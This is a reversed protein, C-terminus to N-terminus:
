DVVIRVINSPDVSYNNEECSVTYRTRGINVVKGVLKENKPALFEVTSDIEINKIIDINIPSNLRHTYEAHGFFSKAVQRYFEGHETFSKNGKNIIRLKSSDVIFHCLEHELIILLASIRDKVEFGNVTHSYLSDEKITETILRTDITISTLSKKPTSTTKTKGTSGGRLRDVRFHIDNIMHPIFRCFYQKSVFELDDDTILEPMLTCFREECVKHIKARSYQIFKEDYEERMPYVVDPYTCGIKMWGLEYSTLITQFVDIIRPNSIRQLLIELYHPNRLLCKIPKSDVIKKQYLKIQDTRLLELVLSCVIKIHTKSESLDVSQSLDGLNLIYEQLNNEDLLFIDQIDVGDIACDRRNM